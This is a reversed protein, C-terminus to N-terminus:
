HSEGAMENGRFVQRVLPLLVLSPRRWEYTYICTSYMSTLHLGDHPLSSHVAIAFAGPTQYYPRALLGGDLSM